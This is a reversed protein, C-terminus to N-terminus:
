SSGPRCAPPGRWWWNWSARCTSFHPWQGLFCPLRCFRSPLPLCAGLGGQDIPKCGASSLPLRKYYVTVFDPRVVSGKGDLMAPMWYASRNVATAGGGECSSGGTTRLSSYTSSANAGLNGFFQHLHAAGPQGPSVIPDDKLLQGAGCIFRFAGVAGPLAADSAAIQGTGWAPVLLSNADFSSTIATLEPYVLNSTATPTTTTATTASATTTTSTSVTGPKSVSPRTIKTLRDFRGGPANGVSAIGVVAAVVILTIAKLSLGTESIM